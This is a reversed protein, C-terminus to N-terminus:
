NMGCCKKFKKGSGCTCPDNRGIKPSDRVVSRQSPDKSDTYFWVGNRKTFHSLEHHTQPGEKSDYMAKFEVMGVTDDAGGRETKIIELGLWTTNEAWERNSRMESKRKTKPDHTKEVFDMLVQTHATYRARMLQEATEAQKQETIIPECCHSYSSGSQCPCDM